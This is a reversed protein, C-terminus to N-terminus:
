EHRLSNVPNATAAKISQYSVTLLAIIMAMLCPLIFIWINLSTRYAFNQLWNNMAFYAIPWAIINALVVWKIFRLSLHVFIGTVSAGLVKRIGIEKTSQEVIFAALGLLGLCSIFIAFITFYLFIKNMRQESIYQRDITEDLFHYEFPYEPCNEKWIKELLNITAPVDMDTIRVSLYNAWEPILKLILPEVKTHLSKYHFDKIVGIIRYDKGATFRKGLPDEMGMAAIAAENLIVGSTDTAFEKAFFRGQSMEMKYTDYFDYNVPIIQMQIRTDPDKGDWDAGSTGSGVDIPLYGSSAVNLINPHQLLQNKVAQYNRQLNGRMSMYILNEKEFGLKSNRILTLQKQVMLTGIILMISLSFQFIVLANRLFSSHSSGQIRTGKLVRAPIFSSLFWAPYMGSFFGTIVLISIFTLVLRFDLRSIVAPKGTLSYFSPLVLVIILLALIFGVTVMLVAEGLFQGILQSRKAGVVKRLGIEKARKLSRATALNMFNICAISLIFIAIIIFIRIYTIDGQNSNAFDFNFKSYLHVRSLPQLYYMNHDPDHIEILTKIKQNVEMMTADRRLQVYTIFSVNSWNDIPMGYQGLLEFSVLFDFQLHSNHPVNQMVGTVIFDTSRTTTLTKGIPDEGAFYRDALRQSIVIANPHDIATAPDGKTFPFTFMQFIDPDAFGGYEEISTNNIKFSLRYSTYRTSKIVEPFEKKMIGALIGPTVMEHVENAGLPDLAVRYLHDRNEHFRDYSLEDRVWLLILTCCAIGIALGSIHILSYGKHRFINRLAIKLYNKFM